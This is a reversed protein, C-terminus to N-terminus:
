MAGHATPSRRVFSQGWVLVAKAVLIMEFLFLSFDSGHGEFVGGPRPRKGPHDALISDYQDCTRVGDQMNTVCERWLGRCKHSVQISSFSVRACLM